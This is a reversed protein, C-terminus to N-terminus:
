NLRAMICDYEIIESTKPNRDAESLHILKFGM